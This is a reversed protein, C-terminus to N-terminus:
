EKIIRYRLVKQNAQIEVFYIGPNISLFDIKGQSFTKSDAILDGKLSFVSYNGSEIGVLTLIDNVPNPYVGFEQELGEIGLHTFMLPFECYLTDYFLGHLQLTGQFPVNLPAKLILTHTQFAGGGIGFYNVTEKAITDGNQDLIVFGPYDFIEQSATNQAQLTITDNGILTFDCCNIILSDCNTQASISMSVFGIFFYVLIKM